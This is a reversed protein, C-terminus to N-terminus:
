KTIPPMRWILETDRCAVTLEFVENDRWLLAHVECGDDTRWIEDYLWWANEVPREQKLVAADRFRIAKIEPWTAEEDVELGLLLDEGERELLRVFSDHLSHEGTWELGQARRMNWAEDMTKETWKQCLKRYAEFDAYVERTCYGLALLRIDKVKQLIAPPTRTQFTRLEADLFEGFLLWEKEPDFSEETVECVEERDRLWQALREARLTRYVEESCEAARDDVRLQVGLASDQMTRYWEKTLLKM